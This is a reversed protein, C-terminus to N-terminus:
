RSHGWYFKTTQSPGWDVLNDWVSGTVKGNKVSKHMLTKGNRVYKFWANRYGSGPYNWAAGDYRVQLVEISYAGNLANGYAVAQAATVGGFILTIVLALSTIIKKTLTKM